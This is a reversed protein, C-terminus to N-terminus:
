WLGQHEAYPHVLDVGRRPSPWATNGRSGDQVAQDCQIAMTHYRRQDQDLKLHYRQSLVVSCGVRAHHLKGTAAAAVAAAAAAVYSYAGIPWGSLARCDVM